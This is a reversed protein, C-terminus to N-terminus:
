IGALIRPALLDGGSWGLVGLSGVQLQARPSRAQCTRSPLTGLSLM